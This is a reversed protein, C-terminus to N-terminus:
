LEEGGMVSVVASATGIQAIGRFAQVLILYIAARWAAVGSPGPIGSADARAPDSTSSALWPLPLGVLLGMQEVSGTSRSASPRSEDEVERQDRPGMSAAGPLLLQGGVSPAPRLPNFLYVDSPEDGPPATTLTGDRRLSNAEGDSHLYYPRYHTDPLPWDTETRWQDIGMVFIM